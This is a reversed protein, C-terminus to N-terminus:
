VTRPTNPVTWVSLSQMWSTQTSLDWSCSRSWFFLRSGLLEFPPVAVGVGVAFAVEDGVAEADKLGVGVGVTTTVGSTM